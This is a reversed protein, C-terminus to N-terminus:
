LIQFVCLLLQVTADAQVSKERVYLNLINFSFHLFNWM